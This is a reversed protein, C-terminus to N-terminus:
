GHSGADCQSGVEAVAETVELLGTAVEEGEVVAGAWEEAGFDVFGGGDVARWAREREEVSGDFEGGAGRGEIEEGIELADFDLGSSRRFVFEM